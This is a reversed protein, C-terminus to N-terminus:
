IAEMIMEFPQENLLANLLQCDANHDSFAQGCSPCVVADSRNEDYEDAEIQSFYKKDFTM